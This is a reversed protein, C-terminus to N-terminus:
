SVLVFFVSSQANQGRGRRQRALHAFIPGDGIDSKPRANTLPSDVAMELRAVGKYGRDPAVHELSDPDVRSRAADISKDLRREHHKRSEVILALEQTGIEIAPPPALPM